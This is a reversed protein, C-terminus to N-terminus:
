RRGRGGRGRNYGGMGRASRNNGGRESSGKYDSAGPAIVICRHPERGESQTSIGPETQLINHVIRRENAPMPELKIPNGERRARQAASRALTELSEQRRARYNGADVTVRVGDEDAARANNLSLNMLYQFSQLTAGQKGILIGVDEGEISLSITAPADTEGRLVQAELGMKDLMERALTLARELTEADIEAVPEPEAEIEEEVDEEDTEDDDYEDGELELDADFDLEDDSDDGESAEVEDDEDEFEERMSDIHLPAEAEEELEENEVEIEVEDEVPAPEEVVPVVPAENDRPRIRVTTGKASQDLVDYSIEDRLAGVLNLAGEVAAEESAATFRMPSFKKPQSM